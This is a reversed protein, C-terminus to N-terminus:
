STLVAHGELSSRGAWQRTGSVRDTEEGINSVQEFGTGFKASSAAKRYLSLISESGLDHDSKVSCLVGPPPFSGGPMSGMDMM